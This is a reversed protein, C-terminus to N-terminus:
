RRNARGDKAQSDPLRATMAECISDPRFENTDGGPWQPPTSYGRLWGIMRKWKKLKFKKFNILFIEAL